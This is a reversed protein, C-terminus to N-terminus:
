ASSDERRRRASQPILSEAALALGAAALPWQFREQWRQKRRVGFEQVDLAQRIGDRYITQLDVDGTMSRVYHGGTIQAIQKLTPEDLHSLVLKGQADRYFGGEPLPIPAGEDRGIGIPYIRVGQARAAQAAQIAGGSHDEGDTILIIARANKGSHNLVNLSTMLARDLATGKAAILNPELDDLFLAAAAYDLTLPCEVYAAGAFAVLAVRDGQLMQLLDVIKRKALSLRSLSTHSEGDHARMSDSVDVALVIDIGRQRVEEWAYGYQLGCLAFLGAALAFLILSLRVSRQPRGVGHVLRRQLTRSVFADLRSTHWRAARWLVFGLGLV